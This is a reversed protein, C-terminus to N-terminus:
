TKTLAVVAIAFGGDHSISLSSDKIAHLKQAKPTLKFHPANLADKYLIIDHFELQSGIGCGLAKSIAEKAAWYGAISDTKNSLNEIEEDSLFRKKYRDGFRDLAKQVRSIAVIDTGIKM